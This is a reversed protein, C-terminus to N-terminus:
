LDDGADHEYVVNDTHEDIAKDLEEVLANLKDESLDPLHRQLIERTEYM